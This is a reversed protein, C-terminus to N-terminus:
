ALWVPPHDRKWFWGATLILPVAVLANVAAVVLAEAASGLLLMLVPALVSAVLAMSHAWRHRFPLGFAVVAALLGGVVLEWSGAAGVGIMGVAFVGLAAVAVWVGGPVHRETTTPTTMQLTANM